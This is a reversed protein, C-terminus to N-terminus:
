REERIDDLNKDQWIKQDDPGKGLLQVQPVHLPLLGAIRPFRRLFHFGLFVLPVRWWYGKRTMSMTIPKCHDRAMNQLHSFLQNNFTKDELFLNAELNLSLSLPDLNSSGITAWVDDALAVKGHLPRKCYEHVVVGDRLLYDYLLRTCASVWPMDPRGQLILTVKVGRKAAKRLARLIRYGPFFYANAIMLRQKAGNIVRLYHREIDRKHRFNDRVALLAKVQGIPQETASADAQEAQPSPSAQRSQASERRGAKEGLLRLSAVRIDDVVPGRVEVAYDQKASPGYGILHDASYNIGGIFAIEGDVVVIKRHLRRFMNIRIGLLRPTPDFLHIKVGAKTMAEIFSATLDASGYDDVTVEVRLGREAAGILVQQLAKGVSDPNFIFTELLVEHKAAAICEFVRPFFQDGNILLEVANGERWVGTM